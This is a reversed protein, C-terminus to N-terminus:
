GNYNARTEYITQYIKESDIWVQMYNYPLENEDLIAELREEAALDKLETYLEIRINIIKKYVRNDAMLNDSSPTSYTIFPISPAPNNADVNFHSYAVPYGTAKLLSVLENLKM